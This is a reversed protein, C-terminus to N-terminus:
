DGDMQTVAYQEWRIQVPLRKIRNILITAKVPAVHDLELTGRSIKAILASANWGFRADEIAERLSDRMEKSDIGSILIKFSLRGDKAQSVESNAYASLGLPDGVPGIQDAESPTEQYGLMSDMSFEEVTESAEIALETALLPAFEPSPPETPTSFESTTAFDYAESPNNEPLNALPALEPTQVLDLSPDEETGLNAQGDMDIFLMTGCQPCHIMGYDDKLAAGCKPCSPSTM